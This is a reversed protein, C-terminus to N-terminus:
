RSQTPELRRLTERAIRSRPDATSVRELHIKAEDIVGADAYLIGLLLHSEPYRSQLDLLQQATGADLVRFRTPPAPAAPATIKAGDRQAVVQWVLTVSRPLPDPPTWTVAPVSPSRALVRAREDFVTVVYSEAGSLPRWEFTPRGTSLPM